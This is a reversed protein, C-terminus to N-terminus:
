FTEMTSENDVCIDVNTEGLQFFSSLLHTMLLLPKQEARMLNRWKSGITPHSTGFIFKLILQFSVEIAM